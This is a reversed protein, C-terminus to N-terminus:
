RGEHTAEKLAVASQVTNLGSILSGHLGPPTNSSSQPPAQLQLSSQRRTLPTNRRALWSAPDIGDLWTLALFVSCRLSASCTGRLRRHDQGGGMCWRENDQDKDLAGVAAMTRQRVRVGDSRGRSCRRVGGSPWASLQFAHQPSGECVQGVLRPTWASWCRLWRTRIADQGAIVTRSAPNGFTSRGAM